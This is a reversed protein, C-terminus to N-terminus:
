YPKNFCNLFAAKMNKSLPVVDGNSMEIIAENSVYKRIESLSIIHSRHVRFFTKVPLINDFKAINYSSLITSDDKLFIKTYSKRGEFRMIKDLSVFLLGEQTPIGIKDVAENNEKIIKKLTSIVEQGGRGELRKKANDIAIKLKNKDIPKLVYGVAALQFADLVYKDFATIFIVESKIEPLEHLIDFGSGGPLVVDLFIIDPQSSLISEVGQDVNECEDVIDILPDVELILKKILVRLAPEDEVVVATIM